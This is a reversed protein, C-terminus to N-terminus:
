KNLKIKSLWSFMQDFAVERVEKQSLFIDHLGNKISLMTINDGLKVGIRKIDEVNLVTDKLMAEESFTSLKISDSSHLILIPVKINSQKLKKQAKRIATVWKFYIPFGEIPKWNLNFDWEGYFDKHLSQAYVPSLIGKIKSYTSIKSLIKAVFFTFFKEIKTQNFDFFPSNLILGNILNREKGSNMYSSTILGGTSHGLLYIQSSTKHIKQIAISIEEFYEEINKCYNPHQHKLLSRGYKRLDIAYFDFNNENFKEGLHPHFFYDVYGHIYLVSARNGLNLNSSILTATVEGEYDPTLKITETTYDQQLNM